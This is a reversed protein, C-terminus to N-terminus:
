VSRNAATVINREHQSLVPNYWIKPNLWEAQDEAVSVAVDVARNTVIPEETRKEWYAKLARRKAYERGIKKNPIDNPSCVAVGRGIGNSGHILCVTVLPRNDADRKYYFHVKEDTFKKIKKM